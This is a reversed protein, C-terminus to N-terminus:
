AVGVRLAHRWYHRELRHIMRKYFRRGENRRVHMSERENYLLSMLRTNAAFYNHM